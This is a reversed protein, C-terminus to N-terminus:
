ENSNNNHTTKNNSLTDKEQQLHYMRASQIATIARYIYPQIKKVQTKAFLEGAKNFCENAKDFQKCLIYNIGKALQMNYTTYKDM